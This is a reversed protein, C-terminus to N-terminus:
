NRLTTIRVWNTLLVILLLLCLLALYLVRRSLPQTDISADSSSDLEEESDSDSSLDKTVLLEKIRKRTRNAQERTLRERVQM